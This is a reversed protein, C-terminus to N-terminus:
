RLRTRSTDARAERLIADMGAPGLSTAVVAAARLYAAEGVGRPPRDFLACFADVGLADTDLVVLRGRWGLETLGRRLRAFQALAPASWPAHVFVIGNVLNTREWDAAGEVEIGDPMPQGALLGQIADDM